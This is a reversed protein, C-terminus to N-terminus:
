GTTSTQAFTKWIEISVKHIAGDNSVVVPVMVAKGVKKEGAEKTAWLRYKGDKEKFARNM